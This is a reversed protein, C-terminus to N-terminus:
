QIVKTPEPLTEYKHLLDMVDTKFYSMNKGFVFTLHGMNEYKHHAVVRHTGLQGALWEVDEPDAMMDGDGALLAVPIKSSLHLPFDPPTLQGYHQYNEQNGYDYRKFTLSNMLQGYHLFNRYGAGSPLHGSISKTRRNEEVDPNLDFAKLFTEFSKPFITSKIENTIESLWNPAFFDYNKLIDVFVFKIIDMDKVANRLVEAKSNILRAAPGLGIFLNVTHEFYHPIMSMGALM